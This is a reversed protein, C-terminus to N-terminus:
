SEVGQTERDVDGSTSEPVGAPQWARVFDAMHRPDYCDMPMDAAIGAKACEAGAIFAARERETEVTLGWEPDDPYRREAEDRITM